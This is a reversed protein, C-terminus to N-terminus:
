EIERGIGSTMSRLREANAAREEETLEPLSLGTRDAREERRRRSIPWYGDLIEALTPRFRAHRIVNQVAETAAEVDSLRSIESVYIRKTAEDWAPRAFAARLALVLGEAEQLTM